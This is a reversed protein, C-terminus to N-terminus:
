RDPLVKLSFWFTSGVGPVSEVGVDGEMLEVLSKVVYLGLGTGRTGRTLPSRVRYFSTFLKALEEKPIGIGQDSVRIIVSRRDLNEQASVSVWGGAPSYKIANNVLNMLVQSVREKDAWVTPLTEPVNVLFSHRDTLQKLGAVVSDVVPRLALAEFRLYLQQKSIRSVDLVNDVVGLLRQSDAYVASVWERWTEETTRRTLLLQSYAIITTLPTRLEHSAVSIFSDKTRVLDKEKSVDVLLIGRLTEHDLGAIPFIHVQLDRPEPRLCQLDVMRAAPHPYDLITLLEQVQSPDPFSSMNDNLLDVLKANVALRAGFPLLALVQKNWHTVVGSSRVVILGESMSQLIAELTERQQRAAVYLDHNELVIGVLATFLHLLREDEASFDSQGQKAVVCLGGIPRSHMYVPVALMSVDTQVSAGSAVPGPVDANRNLRLSTGQAAVTNLVQKAQGIFPAPPLALDTPEPQLLYEPADDAQRWLLIGQQAEVLGCLASVLTRLANLPSTELTLRRAVQEFAVLRQYSRQYETQLSDALRGSHLLAAVQDAIGHLLTALEEDFHGGARSMLSIVALTEGNTIVPFAAVSRIGQDLLLEEARSFNDYSNEIAVRGSRMAIGAVGNNVDMDLLLKIQQRMPGGAKLLRLKSRDESPIRISALEVEAADALKDLLEEAHDALEGPQTLMHAAFLLAEQHAIRRRLTRRMLELAQGIENLETAGISPVPADLKGEKMGKISQLLKKTPGLVGFLIFLFAFCAVVGILLLFTLRLRSLFAASEQQAVASNVALSDIRDSISAAISDLEELQNQYAASTVTAQSLTSIRAGLREVLIQLSLVEERADADRVGPFVEGTGGITITGGNLLVQFGTEMEKQAANMKQLHTAPQNTAAALAAQKIVEQSLAQQRALQIYLLNAEENSNSSAQQALLVIAAVLIFGTFLVIITHWYSIKSM